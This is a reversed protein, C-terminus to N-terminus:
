VITVTLSFKQEEKENDPYCLFSKTTGTKKHSMPVWVISILSLSASITCVPMIQTAVGTHQRVRAQPSTIGSGQWDLQIHTLMPLSVAKQHYCKHPRTQCSIFLWMVYLTGLRDACWTKIPSPLFYPFQPIQHARQIWQCSASSQHSNPFHETEM